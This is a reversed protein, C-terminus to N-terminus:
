RKSALSKTQKEACVKCFGYLTWNVAMLAHLGCLVDFHCRQLADTIVMVEAGRRTVACPTKSACTDASLPLMTLWVSNLHKQADALGIIDAVDLGVLPNAECLTGDQKRERFNPPSRLLEYLARKLIEPLNWTQGLIVAAAPKPVLAPTLRNLDGSFWNLLCQERAFQVFKPFKYTTAARFIAAVTLFTPSIHFFGIADEMAILLAEFDQMTGIDGLHYIDMGDVDEVVVKDINEEDEELPEERGARKEFLKEFWVSQTSLRSRHVRFAVSGFQLIVKGDLAWFRGQFIVRAQLPRKDFAKLNAAPRAVTTHEM